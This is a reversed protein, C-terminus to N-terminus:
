EQPPKPLPMWHTVKEGKLLSNDFSWKGDITRGTTSHSVGCRDKYAIIVTRSNSKFMHKDWKDTGFFKKFISDHEKPMDVDVSVWEM